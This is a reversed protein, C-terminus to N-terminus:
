RVRRYVFGQLPKFFNLHAAIENSSVHQVQDLRPDTQLVHTWIVAKEWVLQTWKADWARYDRFVPTIVVFNEGVGVSRVLADESQKVPTAELRSVADVWDFVQPDAVPGFTNAYRAEPGFYYRLVPVQEPHTTLVLENHHMGPLLQQALQRANEKDPHASYGTWVFIVAVLAVMGLRGSTVLGRAAVIIIAGLVVAFYRTTWAPTVQSSIWALV